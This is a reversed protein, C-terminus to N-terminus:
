NLELISIIENCFNKITDKEKGSLKYDKITSDNRGFAPESYPIYSTLFKFPYNHMISVFTELETGRPNVKSLVAYIESGKKLLAKRTPLVSKMYRDYFEITSSIDKNTINTPMFLYDLLLYCSMVGPQLLTGPLDLLIVDIDDDLNEIFEVANESNVYIINYLNKKTLNPDSAIEVERQLSLTKQADCDLVLVKHKTNNHIYNALVSTLTSKGVGGKQNCLAAIKRKKDAM